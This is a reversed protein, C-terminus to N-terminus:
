IRIKVNSKSLFIAENIPTAYEFDHISFLLVPTFDILILINLFIEIKAAGDLEPNFHVM